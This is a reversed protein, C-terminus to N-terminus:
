ARGPPTRILAEHGYVGATDPAVIPQFRVCLTRSDMLARVTQAPGPMTSALSRTM